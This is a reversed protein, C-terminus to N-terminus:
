GVLRKWESKEDLDNESNKMKGEGGDERVLDGYYYKTFRVLL